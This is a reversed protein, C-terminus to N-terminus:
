REEPNVPIGLEGTRLRRSLEEIQVQVPISNTLFPPWPSGM